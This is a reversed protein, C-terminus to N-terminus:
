PQAALEQSTALFVLVFLVHVRDKYSMVLLPSLGTHATLKLVRHQASSIHLIMPIPLFGIVNM